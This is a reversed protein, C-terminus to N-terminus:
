NFSDVTVKMDKSVNIIYVTEKVPAKNEWPRKYTFVLKTRGAQVAEFAFQYHGGKGIKQINGNASVGSVEKIIGQPYMTYEWAYGSDLKGDFEFSVSSDDSLPATTEESREFTVSPVQRASKENAVPKESTIIIFETTNNESLVVKERNNGPLPNYRSDALPDYPVAAYPEPTVPVHNEKTRRVEQDVM